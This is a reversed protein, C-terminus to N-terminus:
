ILHASLEQVTIGRLKALEGVYMIREATKEEIMNNLLILESHEVASISNEQLKFYLQKQRRKLSTPIVTKIKKLLDFESNEKTEITRASVLRNIEGAFKALSSNDLQQVGKMIEEFGVRMEKTIEIAPM